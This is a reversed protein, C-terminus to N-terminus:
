VMEPWLNSVGAFSQEYGAALGEASDLVLDQVDGVTMGEVYNDIMSVTRTQLNGDPDFTQLDFTVKFMPLLERDGAPRANIGLPAMNWSFLDTPASRAFNEGATRLQVALSRLTNVSAFAGPPLTAGVRGASERVAQWIEATSARENAAERIAGWAWGIGGTQPNPPM